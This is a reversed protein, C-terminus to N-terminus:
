QSSSSNKLKSLQELVAKLPGQLKNKKGKLSPVLAFVEDVSELHFNAIMCIESDCVGHEKLPQLTQKVTEPKEYVEHRQAYMLGKDFSIPLKITPDESLIVMQEQIGKLIEAAECDMLCKTNESIEKEVRLELPLPAKSTQGKGSKGGKNGKAAPADAKGNSKTFSGDLSDESDFQVKRGKKTMGAIDDKGKASPTKLASKGGNSHAPGKGGRESM